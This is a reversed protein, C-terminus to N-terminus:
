KRPPPPPKPISKKLPTKAKSTSLKPNGKKFTTSVPHNTIFTGNITLTWSTMNNSTFPAGTAVNMVYCLTVQDSNSVSVDCVLPASGFPDESINDTYIVQGIVAYDSTDSGTFTPTTSNIWFTSASDETDSLAIQARNDDGGTSIFNIVGNFTCISGSRAFSVNSDTGNIHDSFPALFIGTDNLTSWSVTSDGNNVLTQGTTGATDPLTYQGYVDITGGVYLDGAIDFEDASNNCQVQVSYTDGNSFTVVNPFTILEAFGITPSESAGSVLIQNNTGNISVIGGSNPAWSLTGSGNTIMTYGSTGDTTPLTYASNIELEDINVTSPLSLTIDGTSASVSIENTTGTLSTVGGGGGGNQWTVSGMGDTTLVQNSTGDTTPLSYASNIELQPINVESPFGVTYTGDSPVVQIQLATGQVDIVPLDTWVCGLANYAIYQNSTGPDTPMTYSGGINLTGIDVTSPLSLTIDGTSSSVSIQNDTGTLSSVGSGGGGDQWTVTGSGNTTLVQNNSGDTTPLTYNGNIELEPILATGSFSLTCNGGSTVANIGESGTIATIGSSGTSIANWTASALPIIPNTDSFLRSM